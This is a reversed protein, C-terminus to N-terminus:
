TDRVGSDHLLEEVGRFVERSLRVCVAGQAGALVTAARMERTLLAREGFYEGRKAYSKVVTDAVSAQALVLM